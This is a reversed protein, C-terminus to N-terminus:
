LLLCHCHCHCLNQECASARQEFVQVNGNLIPGTVTQMRPSHCRAGSSVDSWRPVWTRGAWGNWSWEQKTRTARAAVWSCGTNATGNEGVSSAHGQPQACPGGNVHRWPATAVGASNKAVKWPKSGSRLRWGLHAPLGIMWATKLEKERGQRMPFAHCPDIGWFVFITEVAAPRRCYYLTRDFGHQDLSSADCAQFRGARCNQAVSAQGPSLPDHPPIQPFLHYTPAPRFVHGCWLEAETPAITVGRPTSSSMCM